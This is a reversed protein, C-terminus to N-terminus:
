EFKACKIINKLKQKIMIEITLVQIRFDISIAYEIQQISKTSQEFVKNFIHAHCLGFTQAGFFHKKKYRMM